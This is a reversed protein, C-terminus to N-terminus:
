ATEQLGNAYAQHGQDEGARHRIRHDRPDAPDAAAVCGIAAERNPIDRPDRPGQDDVRCVEEIRIDKKRMASRQCVRLVVESGPYQRQGRVPRRPPIRIRGEVDRQQQRKRETEDAGVVEYTMQGVVPARRRNRCDQEREARMDERMGRVNLQEHGRPQREAHERKVAEGVPGRRAPARLQAKGHGRLGGTAPVVAYKQQEDDAERDDDHCHAAWPWAPCVPLRKRDAREDSNQQHRRQEPRVQRQLAVCPKSAADLVRPAIRGVPPRIQRARGVRM